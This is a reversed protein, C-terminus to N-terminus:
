INEQIENPFLLEQQTNAQKQFPQVYEKLTGEYIIKADKLGLFHIPKVVGSKEMELGVGHHSLIEQVFNSCYYYNKKKRVKGFYAMFVGAFDYKYKDKMEYMGRLQSQIQSYTDALIILEIVAIKTRNFFRKFTGISYHEKIFGGWFAMYPHKRGFSYMENLERDFAISSHTYKDKTFFHLFRSPFSGTNSILIYLKKETTGIM